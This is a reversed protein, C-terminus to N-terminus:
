AWDRLLKVRRRRPECTSLVLNGTLRAQGRNPTEPRSLSIVGVMRRRDQRLIARLGPCLMDARTNM